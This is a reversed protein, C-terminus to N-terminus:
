QTGDQSVDAADDRDDDDEDEVSESDDGDSCEIKHFRWEVRQLSPPKAVKDKKEKWALWFAEDQDFM